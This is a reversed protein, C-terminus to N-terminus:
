GILLFLTATVHDGANQTSTGIAKFPNVYPAVKADFTTRVDPPLVTRVASVVAHVDLYFMGTNNTSIQGAVARFSPASTIGGSGAHADLMAKVEAGSSGLIILGNDVAWSPEVGGIGADLPLSTIAVGKYTDTRERRPDCASTSRCLQTALSQLFADAAPKSDTALLLAGGPIASGPTADVELGADGTLHGILGKPGTVGLGQLTQDLGGGLLGGLQDVLARVVHQFGTVALFGYARQPVYSLVDNVHARLALSERQDAPLKSADYDEVFQETVGSSSVQTAGGIGRLGALQAQLGPVSGFAGAVSKVVTALDVYFFTIRDSPLQSDVSKYDSVGPLAAHKGQATDIVEDVMAVTTGLVATHSVIAWSARSSEDSGRQGTIVAIGGHSSTSWTMAAGVAGRRFKDFAAQAKSDDTTAVLVALSPTSGSLRGPARPLDSGARPTLGSASVVVSLQAGLWPRVDSHTLGTGKFAEDLWDNITSDRQSGALGPFKALLGNIALKQAASPDLNVNVYVAADSPALAVLSDASGRIFRFALIGGTVGAAVLVAILTGAIVRRSRRARSPEAAAGPAPGLQQWPVDDPVAASGYPWGPVPEPQPPPPLQTPDPPNM